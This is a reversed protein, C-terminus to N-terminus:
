ALKKEIQKRLHPVLEQACMPKLLGSIRKQIANREAYNILLGTVIPLIDRKRHIVKGIKYQEVLKINQYEWLLPTSTNDLILPVSLQLNEAFTASGPKTICVDACAMLDSMTFSNDYITATVHEPLHIRKIKKILQKNRGVCIMLHIPVTIQSLQHVYTILIKSATAGMIVLVTPKKIPINYKKKLTTRDKKEFFDPRLAFGTILSQEPKVLATNLPKRIEPTNLPLCLSFQDHTRTDLYMLFSSIDYDTPLLIFPIALDQTVESLCGNIFPIVSIIVDAQKELFCTKFLVSMAKHKLKALLYGFYYFLNTLRKHNRELLMNYIDQGVYKKTLAFFPDIPPFLESMPDILEVDYCGEKELYAKLAYAASMHGGGGHCTIILIKKCSTDM